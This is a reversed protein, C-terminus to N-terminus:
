RFSQRLEVGIPSAPIVSGEFHPRLLEALAENTRSKASLEECRGTWHLHYFGGSFSHGGIRSSTFRSTPLLSHLDKIQELADPQRTGHLVRVRRRYKSPVGIKRRVRFLWVSTCQQRQGLAADEMGCALPARSSVALNLLSSYMGCYYKEPLTLRPKYGWDCDM